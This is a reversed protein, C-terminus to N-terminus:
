GDDPSLRAGSLMLGCSKLLRFHKLHEATGLLCCNVKYAIRLFDIIGSSASAGGM